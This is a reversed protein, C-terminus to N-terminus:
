FLHHSTDKQLIFNGSFKKYYRIYIYINMSVNFEDREHFLNILRHINDIEIKMLSHTVTIKVM